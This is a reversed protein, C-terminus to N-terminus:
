SGSKKIKEELEAIKEKLEVMRLERNVAVKNMIEFEGVKKKIDEEM